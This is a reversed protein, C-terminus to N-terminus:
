IGLGSHLAQANKASREVRRVQGMHGQNFRGQGLQLKVLHAHQRRALGPVFRAVQTIGRVAQGHRTQGKRM